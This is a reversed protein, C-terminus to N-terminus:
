LMLQPVIRALFRACRETRVAGHADSRGHVACLEARVVGRAGSRACRMAGRAYCREAHKVDNRACREACRAGSRTFQEARVAIATHGRTRRRAGQSRHMRQFTQSRIQTPSLTAV